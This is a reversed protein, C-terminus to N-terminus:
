LRHGRLINDIEDYEIRIQRTMETKEGATIFTTVEATHLDKPHSLPTCCRRKHIAWLAKALKLYQTTFQNKSKECNILTGYDKIKGTRDSLSPWTVAPQWINLWEILKKVTIDNFSDFLNLWLTKDINISKHIAAMLECATIYDTGYFLKWETKGKIGYDKELFYCITEYKTRIDLHEQLYFQAVSDTSIEGTLVGMKLYNNLAIMPTKSTRNDFAVFLDSFSSQLVISFSFYPVILAQMLASKCYSLWAILNHDKCSALYIYLCYQMAVSKQNVLLEMARKEYKQDLPSSTNMKAFLKWLVSEVYDYPISGYLLSNGFKAEILIAFDPNYSLYECMDEALEYHSDFEELVVSVLAGDRRCAKLMYRISSGNVPNEEFAKKFNKLLEDDNKSIITKESFSISPKKGLAQEKTEAKIIEFKSSQPVLGKDKCLKDLCVIGRIVEERTKGQLVIDDVYRSYIFGSNDMKEDLPLLYLEAFVSSSIPGQPISHNIKRYEADSTNSWAALCRRLLIVYECDQKHILEGTLSNHDITDYFAALDFHVTYIFGKEFNKVIKRRYAHYGDKWPRFLFINKEIDNSFINSFVTNMEFKKREKVFDPILVNAIAQYVILDEIELLTFTRLLGSAKPVYIKLPASPEYDRQIKVSLEKLNSDLNMEYAVFLQRYYNKYSINGTATAIRRWALKLNDIKYVKRFRADMIIIDQTEDHYRVNATVSSLNQEEMTINEHKRQVNLVLNLFLQKIDEESM